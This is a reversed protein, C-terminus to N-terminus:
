TIQTFVRMAEQCFLDDNIHCDLEILEVPPKICARATQNLKDIGAADHLPGGPRDWEHIGHLPLLLVTKSKSKNLKQAMHAMVQAREDPNLVVSTILRNHDHKEHGKLADPLPQWAPLDVLDLFGPAVIQPTASASAGELRDAGASVVSGYFHNSLEQTAFDMVACFQGARALSEFARGGMGTAHFVVAEFDREELEPVLRLMWKAASSGFSTMGVRRRGFQPPMATQTAGAVAGSIQALASRCISNLGYLGGSWLMMILDPALRHPPILHSFAITSVVFKPLGLPLACAVDLALDTGMTGGIILVGDIRGNQQLELALRSAGLAVLTMSQNEDNLAKLEDLATGAATFVQHKDIDVPCGPEGLVSVDMLLVPKGVSQIQERIFGLEASKTDATGILLIAAANTAPASTSTEITM